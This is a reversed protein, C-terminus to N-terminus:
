LSQNWILKPAYLLLGPSLFLFRDREKAQAANINCVYFFLVQTKQKEYITNYTAAILVQGENKLQNKKDPRENKM